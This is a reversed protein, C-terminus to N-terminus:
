RKRKTFFQQDNIVAETIVETVQRERIDALSSFQITYVQKRGDRILMGQENSLLNGYCFGMTVHPQDRDKDKSLGPHSGPWLFFLRRNRSFYPVGYSLKEKIAPDTELILTRLRRTILREERPLDDVFDEVAQM